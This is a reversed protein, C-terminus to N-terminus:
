LTWRETVLFCVSSVSLLLSSGVDSASNPVNLTPLQYPKLPWLHKAPHAREVELEPDGVPEPIQPLCATHEAIFDAYPKVGHDDAM